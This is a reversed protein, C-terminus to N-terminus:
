LSFFSILHIRIHAVNGTLNTNDLKIKLDNLAIAKTSGVLNTSFSVQTLAQKDAM